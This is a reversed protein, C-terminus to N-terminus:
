NVTIVATQAVSTIFITGAPIEAEKGKIFLAPWFILAAIGISEVSRNDGAKHINGSLQIISEDIAKVQTVQVELGGERGLERAQNSATILGTLEEGAKILIKGDVEVDLKVRFSVVQGTTSVKSSLTQILEIQFNTGAKLERQNSSITSKNLNLSANGTNSFMDKDGNPYKVM